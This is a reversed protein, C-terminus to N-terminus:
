LARGPGQCLQSTLDVTRCRRPSAQESIPLPTTIFTCDEQKSYITVYSSNEVKGGRGRKHTHYVTPGPVAKILGM